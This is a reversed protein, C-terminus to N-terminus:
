IVGSLLALLCITDYAEMEALFCHDRKDIWGEMWGDVLGTWGGMMFDYV